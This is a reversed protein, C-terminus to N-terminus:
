QDELGPRKGVWVGLSNTYLQWHLHTRELNFFQASRMCTTDQLMLGMPIQCWCWKASSGVPIQPPYRHGEDTVNFVNM